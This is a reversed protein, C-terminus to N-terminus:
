TRGLKGSVASLLVMGLSEERKGRLKGFKVAAIRLAFVVKVYGESLCGIRVLM